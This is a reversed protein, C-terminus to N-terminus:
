KVKSQMCEYCLRGCENAKRGRRTALGAEDVIKDCKEVTITRNQPLFYRNRNHRRIQPAKQGGSEPLIRCSGTLCGLSLFSRIENRYAYLTVIFFIGLCVRRLETFGTSKWFVWPLHVLRKIVARTLRARPVDWPRQESTMHPKLICLDIISRRLIRPALAKSFNCFERCDHGAKAHM